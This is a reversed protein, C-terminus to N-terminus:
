VPPGSPETPASEAAPAWGIHGAAERARGLANQGGRDSSGGSGHDHQAVTGSLSVTLACGIVLEIM